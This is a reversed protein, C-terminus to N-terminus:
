KARKRQAPDAGERVGGSRTRQHGQSDGLRRLSSPASRRVPVALLFFFLFFFFIYFFSFSSSTVSHHLDAKKQPRPAPPPPPPTFRAKRPTAALLSPVPKCTLMLSKKLSGPRPSIVNDLIGTRLSRSEFNAPCCQRPARKETVFFLFCVFRLSRNFCYCPSNSVKPGCETRSWSLKLGM